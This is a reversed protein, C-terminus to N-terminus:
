HLVAMRRTIQGDPTTLQILYSGSPLGDRRFAAAHVGAEAPGDHLVRVERGLHDFVALRAPMTRDVSWTIQTAHTFPNPHNQELAFGLPMGDAMVRVVPSWTVAGNSDMQRLRYEQMVGSAPHDVFSYEHRGTTTGHGEVTGIDTYAAEAVMKRQVTFGLNSTESETTWQLLVSNDRLAHATFASLEVPTSQQPVALQAISAVVLKVAAHFIAQHSSQNMIQWNDQATHYYLNFDGPYEEILLVATRGKSWFSAHDSATTGPNVSRLDAPLMYMTNVDEMYDALDRSWAQATNNTTHITMKRDGNADWMLMDCNIIAHISDGQHATAYAASGLLGQEEGGFTIFRITYDFAFNRLVRAAELVAATGSANDDAGPCSQNASDFHGCIIVQANRRGPLTAIVNTKNFPTANYEYQPNLGYREFIGHIHQAAQQFLTTTSRRSTILVPAGNITVATVGSLEKVFKQMSDLSCQALANQVLPDVTVVGFHNQASLGGTAVLLATCSLVLLRRLRPTHHLLAPIPM